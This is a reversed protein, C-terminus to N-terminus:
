GGAPFRGLRGSGSLFGGNVSMIVKTKTKVRTTILKFMAKELEQLKQQALKMKESYGQLEYIKVVVRQELLARFEVPIQPIPTQNELAVWDGVNLNSIPDSLTIDTGTIATISTTGLINFPPQDGVVDVESGITLNTPLSFTSLTNGVVGTVQAALSSLILRSPRRIYWLRVSGMGPTPLIQVHNGRLFFGYSTASPSVTSFQESEELLSIPTIGTDSVLEVNELTGAVCDRPIVYLGDITPAYDKYDLYYGGRTSQIQSIISTQLERDALQIIKTATFTNNGTPLHSILLVNDVLDATTYTNSNAM